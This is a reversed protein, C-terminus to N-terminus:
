LASSRRLKQRQLAGVGRSGDFHVVPSRRPAEGPAAGGHRNCGFCRRAMKKPEGFCEHSVEMKRRGLAHEACTRSLLIELGCLSKTSQRSLCCARIFCRQGAPPWLTPKM